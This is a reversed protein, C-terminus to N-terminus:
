LGDYFEISSSLFQIPVKYLIRDLYKISFAVYFERSHRIPLALKSIQLIRQLFDPTILTLRNCSSTRDGAKWMRIFSAYVTLPGQLLRILRYHVRTM